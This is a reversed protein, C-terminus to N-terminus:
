RKVAKLRKNTQKTINMSAILMDNSIKKTRELQAVLDDVFDDVNISEQVKKKRGFM